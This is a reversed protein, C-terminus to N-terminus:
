EHHVLKCHPLDLQVDSSQYSRRKGTGRISRNGEVALQLGELELKSGKKSM